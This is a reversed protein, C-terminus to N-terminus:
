FSVIPPLIVCRISSRLRCVAAGSRSALRLLGTHTVYCSGSLILVEGRDLSFGWEQTIAHLSSKLRSPLSHGMTREAARVNQRLLPQKRSAKRLKRDPQPSAMETV